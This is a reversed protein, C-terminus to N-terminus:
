KTAKALVVFIAWGLALAALLFYAGLGEIDPKPEVFPYIFLIAVAPASVSTAVVGLGTELTLIPKRKKLIRFFVVFLLGVAGCVASQAAASTLALRM